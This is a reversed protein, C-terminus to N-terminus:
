EQQKVDRKKSIREALKIVNLARKYSGYDVMRGGVSTAGLGRSKAEEYAAIVRKALEIDEHSPTFVQNVPDIHRPHTLLKGTFGMLKVKRTEEILGDVDIIMGFYPADIALLGHARAVLSIVCRPFYSMLWFDEKSLSTVGMGAGIERSYDGAGFSLGIVRHGTKAIEEANQVGLPTEILPLIRTKGVPVNRKAEKESLLQDLTLIDEARDSKPLMVGTLDEQVVYELDEEAMGTELSNIRVFVEVGRDKILPVADRAFVRGTEKEEFPCGDEIDLIVADESEELATQIMRWSNAPVFLMSRLLM